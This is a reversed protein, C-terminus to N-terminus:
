GMVGYLGRLNRIKMKTENRKRIFDPTRYDTNDVNYGFQRLAGFIEEPDFLLRDVLVTKQGAFLRYAIAPDEESLGAHRQCMRVEVLDRKVFLVNYADPSERIYRAVPIPQLVDKVVFGSDGSYGKLRDAVKRCNSEEDTNFLGNLLEGQEAGTTKFGLARVCISYITTTCGKPVGVILLSRRVSPEGIM